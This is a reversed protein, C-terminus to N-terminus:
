SGMLWEWAYNEDVFKKLNLCFNTDTVSAVNNWIPTYSPYYIQVEVTAM